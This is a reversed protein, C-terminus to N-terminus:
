DRRDPPLRRPGCQAISAVVASRSRRFKGVLDLLVDTSPDGYEGADIKAVIEVLLRRMEDARMNLVNLLRDKVTVLEFATMAQVDPAGPADRDDVWTEPM